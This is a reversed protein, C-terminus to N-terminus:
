IASTKFHTTEHDGRSVIYKEESWAPQYDRACDVGRTQHLKMCIQTSPFNRRAHRGEHAFQHARPQRNLTQAIDTGM